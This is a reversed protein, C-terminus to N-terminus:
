PLDALMRRAVPAAADRLSPPSVVRCSPGLQLLLVGLRAAATGADLEIRIDVSGDGTPGLVSGHWGQLLWREVQEDDKPVRVVAPIRHDREGRPPLAPPEFPVDLVKLDGIGSLDFTRYGIGPEPGADLVLRDRHRRVDYPEVTEETAQRTWPDRYRFTVTRRDRTAKRLADAVGDIPASVTAHMATELRSVLSEIAARHRENLSTSVLLSKAALLGRAVREVTVPERAVDDLLPGGGQLSSLRVVDAGAQKDDDESGAGLSGEDTGFTISFPAAVGVADAGAVMYSSLLERLRDPLLGVRRALDAVRASREVQLILLADLLRALQQPAPAIKPLLPQDGENPVFPPRSSM